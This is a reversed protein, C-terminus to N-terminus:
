GSHRDKERGAAERRVEDANKIVKTRKTRTGRCVSRAARPYNSRGRCQKGHVSDWLKRKGKDRHQGEQTERM